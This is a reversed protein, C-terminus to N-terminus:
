PTTGHVVIEVRRNRTKAAKTNAPDLPRYQGHGLVVCQEDSIDCDEVLFTLVAMARAISLDRNTGFKSKQIPDADTHGEISFVGSAHNGKLVTAVSRLASKGQKSLDAKGSPFTISSPITIVALGDRYLYDIGLDELGPHSAAEVPEPKEISRQNAERLQSGLSDIEALLGQRDRKLRVREERLDSIEQDREGIAQRYAEPSTCAGVGLAILLFGLLTAPRTNRIRKLL